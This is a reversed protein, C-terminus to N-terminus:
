TMKKFLDNMIRVEEDTYCDFRERMYNAQLEEMETVLKMGAETIELYVVRRDNNCRNREVLERKILKETVATIHSNSVILESAIKSVMQQKDRKLIRLVFFENLPIYSDFMQNMDTRFRRITFRFNNALEEVAAKREPNM